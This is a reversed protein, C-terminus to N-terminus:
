KLVNIKYREKVLALDIGLNDQGEKKYLIINLKPIRVNSIKFTDLIVNLLEQNSLKADKVKSLDSSGILPIFTNEAAGYIDVNNWMNIFCLTLEKNSPIYARNDVDFKTFALLFFDNDPYISGLQYRKKYGVKRSNEVGYYSKAFFNDIKTHLESRSEPTEYRTNLYIGHLSSSKIVNKSKDTITDYFENVPIIKNGHNNDSFIDGYYINVKTKGIEFNISNLKKLKRIKNIFLFIFVFFTGILATLSVWMKYNFECKFNLFALVGLFVSLITFTLAIAGELEKWAIQIYKKM